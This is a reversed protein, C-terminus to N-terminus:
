GARRRGGRGEDRAPVGLRGIRRLVDDQAEPPLSALLAAIAALQDEPPTPADSSSPSPPGAIEALEELEQAADARGAESLEEATIGITYAIRALTDAPARAVVRVGKIVHSGSYLQRWRTESLGVRRAAERGSIRGRKLAKRILAAEPPEGEHVENNTM